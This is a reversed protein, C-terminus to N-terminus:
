HDKIKSSYKSEKRHAKGYEDYSVNSRHKIKKIVQEFQEASIITPHNNIMQILGNVQNSMSKLQEAKTSSVRAYIGVCYKEKEVGPIIIVNSM